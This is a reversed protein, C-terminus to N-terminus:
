ASQLTSDYKKINPISGVRENLNNLKDCGKLADGGGVASLLTVVGHLMLDAWTLCNGALHQGGRSELRKELNKFATECAPMCEAMKAKKDTAFFVGFLKNQVDNLTDVAEDAEAKCIETHGSLNYRFYNSILFVFCFIYIFHYNSFKKPLITCNKVFIQGQKNNYVRRM